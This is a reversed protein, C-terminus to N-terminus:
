SLISRHFKSKQSTHKCEYSHRHGDLPEHELRGAGRRRGHPRRPNDDHRGEFPGLVCTLKFFLVEGAVEQDVEFVLGLGGVHGDAAVAVGEGIEVAALGDKVAGQQGLLLAHAVRVDGASGVAREVQGHRVQVDETLSGAEPCALPLPGCSCYPQPLLRAMTRIFDKSRIWQVCESKRTSVAKGSSPSM